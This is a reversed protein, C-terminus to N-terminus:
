CPEDTEPLAEVCVAQAKLEPIFAEPDLSQASTLRNASAESYHFPMFVIDRIISERFRLWTDVHGRRSSVRVRQGDSLGLARASQPHMEIYPVGSIRSLGDIKGTMTRTHYQYLNRGTTFVFPYEQDPIEAPLHWKSIIFRGKGRTTKGVHLVPTGPHSADPCPWQIGQQEIRGYSIGRYQPVLSAMEDFVSAALAEGELRTSEQGPKEGPVGVGLKRALAALIELDSMASGPPSVAKRVRQVRRETNTFTGDKEAFCAAPLVVDAFAATETLFIDQVVLFGIKGLAREVLTRDPESVAPNEGMIHLFGLNGKDAVEMMATSTLGPKEPLSCGWVSEFRARAGPDSVKAYGPLDGPLCGADCAGQVNNQGRLPNIGAGSVGLHGCLLALNSLSTVADTGSSHQTVGMAYYIGAREAKAYLIAAARLDSEPVGCIRASERVDIGDMFKRWVEYDETRGSIFDMDELGAELIARAMGNYLAVNTGPRLPLFIKAIGSLEIGRPDAVILVAGRAVAQKMRAGIVPHTETTNSGTVFLVEADDIGDISDTMAGSGLSKALGTVSSAHCLRACHDISNTGGGARYLKQFLYNEENTCRASSLAALSGGPYGHTGAPRISADPSSSESNGDMLRRIEEAVRDLAVDWSTEVLVGDQRILPQTLREAHHIFGHAFRGKVCLLGRNVGDKAPEVGVVHGESVLLEISCGVGCYPCTTKVGSVYGYGPFSRQKPLLAGVPCAAVCNGCSVCSSSGLPIGFDAVVRSSQGRGGLGLVHQCQFRECVRVCKGCLICKGPDYTFFPHSVDPNGRKRPLSAAPKVIGYLRSLRHLECKGMAKCNFCDVEHEDIIMGLVASRLAVAAPSRTKVIMGEAAPTACSAAFGNKAGEVEVLCVRCGGHAEIGPLNCLVPIFIGLTRAADLISTGEPVSVPKGDITLQIM